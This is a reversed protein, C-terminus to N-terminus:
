SSRGAMIAAQAKERSEALGRRTLETDIRMKATM